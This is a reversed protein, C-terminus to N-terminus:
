ETIHTIATEDISNIFMNVKSAFHHGAFHFFYYSAKQKIEKHEKLVTSCNAICRTEPNQSPVRQGMVNIVNYFLTFFPGEQYMVCM